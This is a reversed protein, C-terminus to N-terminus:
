AQQIANFGRVLAIGCILRYIFHPLPLRLRQDWWRVMKLPAKGVISSLFVVVQHLQNPEYMAKLERHKYVLRPISQGVKKQREYFTCVDMPHDHSATAAELFFFNAGSRYLRYGLEVDELAASLFQEDFLETMSELMLRRVSLNSTYFFRWDMTAGRRLLEYGFQPGFDNIFTMFPTPHLHEPWHTYGVAVQKKSNDAERHFDFHHQLFGPSPVIDDGLFVLVQGNAAAIASNRAAAPGRNCNHRISNRNKARDCWRRLYRKTDDTSGDDVVVIEFERGAIVQHDLADLTNALKPCRNYTNILVSLALEGPM